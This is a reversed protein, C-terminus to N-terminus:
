SSRVCGSATGDRAGPPAESHLADAGPGARGGEQRDECGDQEDEVRRLPDRAEEALPRLLVDGARELHRQGGGEAQAARAQRDYTATELWWLMNSTASRPVSRKRLKGLYM